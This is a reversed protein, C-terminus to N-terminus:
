ALEEWRVGEWARCGRTLSVLGAELLTEFTAFRGLLRRRRVSCREAPIKMLRAALRGALHRRLEREYPESSTGDRYNAREGAGRARGRERARENLGLVSSQMALVLERLGVGHEGRLAKLDLLERLGDKLSRIAREVWCNHQPTEEPTFHRRRRRAKTKTRRSKKPALGAEKLWRRFNTETLDEAACFASVSQRRRQYAELFSTKEALSYSRRPRRPQKAKEEDHLGAEAPRCGEDHRPESM